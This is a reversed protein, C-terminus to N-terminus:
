MSACRKAHGGPLRRAVMNGCWCPVYLLHNPNCADTFVVRQEVRTCVQRVASVVAAVPAVPLEGQMGQLQQLIPLLVLLADNPKGALQRAHTFAKSAPPREDDATSFARLAAAVAAAAAAASAALPPTGHLITQTSSIHQLLSLAEPTFGNQM